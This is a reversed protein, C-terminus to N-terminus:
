AARWEPVTWEARVPALNEDLEVHDWLARLVENIAGPAWTWHVAAPVAVLATETATLRDIEADLAAVKTSREERGIMGDEFNQIVRERRAVLEDRQADPAPAEVREVPSQLRAAEAKIWPLLASEQVKAHRPHTSDHRARWCNYAMYTTKGQRLSKTSRSPTLLTGCPCRLLRALLAPADAPRGRKSPRHEAGQSRAVVRRVGTDSWPTPRPDELNLIRAAGHYSGGRRYADLVIDISQGPDPELRGDVLRFGYPPQGIHDGRGRRLAIHDRAKEASVEAEFTAVAALVTLYLRGHASTFDLTGEKALRVVVGAEACREGLTLLEKTSRALRSLSHAYIVTVKGDIIMALLDQWAKRRGGRGTGGFASGPAAGSLGWDSILTLDADGHRAALERIQAEQVDWSLGHGNPNIKSKRIYAVAAM